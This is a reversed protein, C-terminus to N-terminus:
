PLAAQGRRETKHQGTYASAKAIPQYNTWLLGVVLHRFLNIFGPTHPPWPGNLSQLAVSSPYLDQKLRWCKLYPELLYFMRFQIVARIDPIWDTRLKWWSCLGLQIKTTDCQWMNAFSKKDMNTIIKGLTGRLLTVTTLDLLTLHTPYTACM